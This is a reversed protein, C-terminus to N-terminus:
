AILIMSVVAGARLQGILTAAPVSEPRQLATTVKVTVATSTQSVLGVTMHVGGDPDTNGCPVVVTEQTVKSAQPLVLVQLKGTITVSPSAGAIVQGLLM